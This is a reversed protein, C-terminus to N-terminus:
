SILHPPTEGSNCTMEIVTYREKLKAIEKKQAEIIERYGEPPNGWCGQLHFFRIEKKRNDVLKGRYCKGKLMKLTQLVTIQTTAQRGHPLFTTVVSAVSDTKIDSPLCPYKQAFGSISLFTLCLLGVAFRILCILKM